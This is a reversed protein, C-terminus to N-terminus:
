WASDDYSKPIKKKWSFIRKKPKTEWLHYCVFTSSSFLAKPTKERLNRDREDIEYGNNTWYSYNQINESLNLTQNEYKRLEKWNSSYM